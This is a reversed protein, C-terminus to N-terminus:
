FVSLKAKYNNCGGEKYYYIQHDEITFCLTHLILVILRQGIKKKTTSKKFYQETGKRSGM